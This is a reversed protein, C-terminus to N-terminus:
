ITQRQLVLCRWLTESRGSSSMPSSAGCKKELRYERTECCPCVMDPSREFMRRNVILRELPEVCRDCADTRKEIIARVLANRLRLAREIDALTKTEQELNAQALTEAVEALKKIDLADKGAGATPSTVDATPLLLSDDSTFNIAM